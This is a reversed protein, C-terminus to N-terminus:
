FHYSFGVSWSDLKLNDQNYRSLYDASLRMNYPLDYSIRGGWAFGSFEEIGDYVQANGTFNLETKAYGLALDYSFSDFNPTRFRILAAQTKSADISVGLLEDDSQSLDTQLELFTRNYLEAALKFTVATPKADVGAFDSRIQTHDIGVYYENANASIAFLSFCLTLYIIRIM